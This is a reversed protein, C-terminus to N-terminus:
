PGEVVVGIAQQPALLRRLVGLQELWGIAMGPRILTGASPGERWLGPAPALLVTRGDEQRALAEVEPVFQRSDTM